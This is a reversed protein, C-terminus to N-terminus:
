MAKHTKGLGMEDALLGNLKNEYLWWMWQVGLFQYERLRLKTHVLSPVKINNKFELQDRIQNLVKKSGVFQDFDGVAAKLRMLGLSSVKIFKGSDDTEWNHDKVFDPIRIWKGGQQIYNRKKKRFQTVLDLMSITESGSQYRPDLFFWGDSAKHIRIEKLQPA